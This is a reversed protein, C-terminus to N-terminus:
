WSPSLYSLPCNILPMFSLTIVDSIIVSIVVPPFVFSTVLPCNRTQAFLTSDELNCFATNSVICSFM